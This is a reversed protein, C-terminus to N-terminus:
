SRKWYILMFLNAFHTVPASIMKEYYLPKLNNIVWKIMEDEMMPPLVQTAIECWRQSYEHFSERSKKEIRQLVTRNLAIETNFQYYELFANAIEKWSSTNELRVFWTAM